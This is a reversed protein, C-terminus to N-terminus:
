RQAFRPQEADLDGLAIVVDGSELSTALPVPNCGGAMGITALNIPANCNDCIITDGEQHYGAPPCISCADLAVAFDGEERKIVMFRVDAQSGHYLFKHLRGPELAEAAIRVQDEQPAVETPRPRYAAAEAAYVTWALPLVIALTLGIVAMQWRRAQRLAAVRKRREAPGEGPLAAEEEALRRLGPLMALAPLLVLVMLIVISTSDKVIFGILALEAPTTPLLGVESFEHVSGALLRVVLVLLVLSTVGFFRRLDIRLSGRILLFGFLAALGLGTAGGILQLLGGAATLSLAALFLVIEVGERFVTFFTFGLLGWGQRGRAEGTLVELRTEVHRKISRSARWMWIVLTAVLVAAVALLTGELVENEPDLGVLSFGVAGALSALVALILGAYVYRSFAARGTRNLYALILGVVLAAEMGERLTIVLAEM